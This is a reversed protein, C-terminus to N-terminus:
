NKKPHLTREFTEKAQSYIWFIKRFINMEIHMNGAQYVSRVHMKLWSLGAFQEDLPQMVSVLVVGVILPQAFVICNVTLFFLSSAPFVWELRNNKGAKGKEARKAAGDHALNKLKSNQALLEPSVTNHPALIDREIMSTAGGGVGKSRGEQPWSICIGFRARLRM